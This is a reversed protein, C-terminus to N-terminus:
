MTCSRRALACEERIGTQHVLFIFPPLSLPITFQDTNQQALQFFASYSCCVTVGGRAHDVRRWEWQAFRTVVVHDGHDALFRLLLRLIFHPRRLAFSSADMQGRVIVWLFLIFYDSM